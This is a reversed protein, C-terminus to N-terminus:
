TEQSVTIIISKIDDVTPDPLAVQEVNNGNVVDEVLVAYRKEMLRRVLMMIVDESLSMANKKIYLRVLAEYPLQDVVKGVYPIAAHPLHKSVANFIAEGTKEEAAKKAVDFIVAEMTEDIKNNVATTVDYKEVAAAIADEIRDTVMEYVVQRSELVRENIRRTATAEILATTTEAVMQTMRPSNIRMEFQEGINRWAAGDRVFHESVMTSFISGLQQYVIDAVQKKMDTDFEEGVCHEKAVAEAKGTIMKEAANGIIIATKDSELKMRIADVARKYGDGEPAYLTRITEELVTRYSAVIMEAARANLLDENAIIKVEFERVPANM